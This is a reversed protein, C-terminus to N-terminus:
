NIQELYVLLIAKELHTFRYNDDKQAHIHGFVHYSARKMANWEAIPFHSLIVNRNGDKIHQQREMGELYKYASQSEVTVKDLNGIILYKHGNLLKLYHSPDFSSRYIFDGLIYVKDDKGVKQNWNAILTQDMEEIDAFPRKDYEIVRKHGFHTDAIYYIM